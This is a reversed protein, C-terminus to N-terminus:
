ILNLTFIHFQNLITHVGVQFNMVPLAMGKLNDWKTVDKIFDGIRAETPECMDGRYFDPMIVLYGADALFDCM